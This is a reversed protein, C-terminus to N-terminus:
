EWRMTSLGVVELYGPYNIAGIFPIDGVIPTLTYVKYRANVQILKELGETARVIEICSDYTGSCPVADVILFQATEQVREQIESDSSTDFALVVARRAGERAANTMILWSGFVRGFEFILFFLVLILPTLLVLEVTAQGRQRKM